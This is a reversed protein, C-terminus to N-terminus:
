FVQPLALRRYPDAITILGVHFHEAEGSSTIARIVANRLELALERDPRRKDKGAQEADLEDLIRM